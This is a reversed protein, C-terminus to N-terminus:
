IKWSFHTNESTRAYPKWGKGRVYHEDLVVISNHTKEARVSVVQSAAGDCVERGMTCHLNM